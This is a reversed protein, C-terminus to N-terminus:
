ITKLKKIIKKHQYFFYLIQRIENKLKYLSNSAKKTSIISSTQNITQKLNRHQNNNRKNSRRRNNSGRRNYAHNTCICSKQLRRTATCFIIMIMIVLFYIVLIIDLAFSMKKQM